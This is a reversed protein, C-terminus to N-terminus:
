NGSFVFHISHKKVKKDKKKPYGQGLTYGKSSKKIIKKLDDDEM